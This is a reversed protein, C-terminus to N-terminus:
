TCRRSVQRQASHTPVCSLRRYPVSAASYVAAEHQLPEFAIIPTQPLVTHVDLSFQGRNAGVDIVYTPHLRRLMEQPWYTPLVGHRAAHRGIKTRGVSLARRTLERRVEASLLRAIM